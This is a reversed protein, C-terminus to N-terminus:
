ILLWQNNPPPVFGIVSSLRRIIIISVIKRFPRYCL